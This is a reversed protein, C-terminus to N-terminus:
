DPKRLPGTSLRSYWVGEADHAGVDANRNILMEVITLHNNKAAVILPTSRDRAATFNVDARSNLCHSVLSFFCRYGMNLLFVPWCMALKILTNNFYNPIQYDPPLFEFIKDFIRFYPCKFTITLSGGGGGGKQEFEPIPNTIATPDFTRQGFLGPKQPM